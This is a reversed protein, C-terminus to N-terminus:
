VHADVLGWDLATTLDIRHGSLAMAATRWRGIRRTISVTGGAGPILGMELEPLRFWADERADVHSAFAPIEIGAGICAGHLLVRVQGAIRHIELGANQTMRVVHAAAVDTVTGFEDLDGGSCFSPGAGSVMVSAISRDLSAMRLGDVLGDRVARGFANHRDPRNLVISLRDRDRTYVVPEDSDPVRRRPTRARWAQFEGGALLMSYAMSEVALGDHVDVVSTLALVDTLALSAHPASAVLSAIEDVASTGLAACFQDPGSPALTTTLHELLPAAQPPLPESSLGVKVGRLRQVAAVAPGVSSWDAHDLDVVLLPCGVPDVEVAPPQGALSALVAVNM